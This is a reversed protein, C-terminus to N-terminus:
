LVGYGETKIISKIKDETLTSDDYTLDVQGSKHSIKQVKAGADELSEKLLIECSSCHMGTTKFTIKKQM